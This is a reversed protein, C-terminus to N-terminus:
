RPRTEGAGTGRSAILPILVPDSGCGSRFDGPNLVPVLNCPGTFAACFIPDGAGPRGGAPAAYLVQLHNFIHYTPNLRSQTGRPPLSPDHGHMLDVLLSSCHISRYDTRFRLRAGAPMTALHWVAPRVVERLREPLRWVEPSNEEFWPLGSVAIREDPFPVWEM